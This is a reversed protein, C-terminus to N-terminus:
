LLLPQDFLFGLPPDKGNALKYFTNRLDSNLTLVTRLSTVAFLSACWEQHKCMRGCLGHPCSCIGAALDVVYLQDPQKESPAHYLEEGIQRIKDVLNDPPLSINPVLKSNQLMFASRARLRYYAELKETLMELLQCVNFARARHLVLDKVIRM